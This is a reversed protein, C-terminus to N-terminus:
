RRSRCGPDGRRGPDAIATAPSGALTPCPAPRRGLLTPLRTREPRSLVVVDQKPMSPRGEAAPDQVAVLMLRVWVVCSM